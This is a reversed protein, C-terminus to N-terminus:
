EIVTPAGSTTLDASGSSNSIVPNPVTSNPPAAEILPYDAGLSFLWYSGAALTGDPVQVSTAPSKLEVSAAYSGNAQSQFFLLAETVGPPNTLTITGGGNGDSTFTANPMAPLVTPPTPLTASATYTLNKGNQSTETSVTYTGSVPPLGTLIYGTAYGGALNKGPFAPPEGLTFNAGATQGYAFLNGLTVPQSLGPGTLTAVGPRFYAALGNSQRFTTVINLYTGVSGLLGYQDNLTGVAMQLTAQTATYTVPATSTNTGNCAALGAIVTIAAFRVYKM